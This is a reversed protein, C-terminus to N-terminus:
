HAAPEPEKLLVVAVKDSPGKLLIPASYDVVGRKKATKLTGALAEFIDQTADYLPGFNVSWRGDAGQAGLKKIQEALLAVEHDVTAANM